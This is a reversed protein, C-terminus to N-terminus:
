SRTGGPPSNVPNPTTPATTPQSTPNQSPPQTPTSTKPASPSQTPAPTGGGGGGGAGPKTPAPGPSSTHPPSVPKSPPTPTPTHAPKTTAVPGPPPTTAKPPPPPPTPTNLVPPPTISVPPPTRTITAPCATNLPLPDSTPPAENITANSAIFEGQGDQEAYEVNESNVNAEPIQDRLSAAVANGLQPYCLLTTRTSGAQYLDVSQAALIFSHSSNPFLVSASYPPNVLTSFHTRPVELVLDRDYNNKALLFQPRTADCESNTAAANTHWMGQRPFPISNNTVIDQGTMLEPPPAACVPKINPNQSISDYLTVVSYNTYINQSNVVHQAYRKDSELRESVIAFKAAWFLTYLSLLVLPLALATEVLAQGRQTQKMM